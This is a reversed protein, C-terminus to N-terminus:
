TMKECLGRFYNLKISTRTWIILWVCLYIMYKNHLDTKARCACYFFTIIMDRVCKLTLGCQKYYKQDKSRCFQSFLM